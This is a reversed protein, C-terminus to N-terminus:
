GIMWQKSTLEGFPLVVMVYTSYHSGGDSNWDAREGELELKVGTSCFVFSNLPHFCGEGYVINKPPAPMDPHRYAMSGFAATTM